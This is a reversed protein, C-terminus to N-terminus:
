KTLLKQIDPDNQLNGMQQTIWACRRGVYASMPKVKYIKPNPLCAAICAAQTRTLKKASKNYYKRAAAEIGFVGKGM